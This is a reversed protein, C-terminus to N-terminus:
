SVPTHNTACDDCVLGVFPFRTQSEPKVVRALYEHVEIARLDQFHSEHECNCYPRTREKPGYCPGGHGEPRRCPGELYTVTKKEIRQATKDCDPRKARAITGMYDSYNHAKM